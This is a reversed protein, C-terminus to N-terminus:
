GSQLCAIAPANTTTSEIDSEDGINCYLVTLTEQFYKVIIQLVTVIVEDEERDVPIEKIWKKNLGFTFFKNSKAILTDTLNNISHGMLKQYHFYIGNKCLLIPWTEKISQLSPPPLSNLFLRQKPYSKNMMDQTIEDFTEFDATRLYNEMDDNTLNNQIEPQWSVCGSKLNMMKRRKNVPIPNNKPRQLRKRSATVYKIREKVQNYTTIAGDGIVTGDDDRDQFIKPFKDVLKRAIIKCATNPVFGEAVELMEDTVLHIMDKISQRCRVGNEFNKMATSSMKEYPIKFSLWTNESITRSSCSSPTSARTSGSDTDFESLNEVTLASSASDHSHMSLHTDDAARSWEETEELVLFIEKHLIKVVEDDDIETGDSELVLRVGNINLKKSAEVILTKCLESTSENLFVVKKATRRVNWTKFIYAM